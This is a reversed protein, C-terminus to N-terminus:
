EWPLVEYSDWVSGDKDLVFELKMREESAEVRLYGWQNTGVKSFPGFIPSDGCGELGAGASGITIHQTGGREVCDGSKILCTREYAHTHAVLALNVKYKEFLPDLAQRMFRSVVYDGLECMQTTYIPRHSTVVVWPTRSRNVNALDKDMWILQNSGSQWDHESDMMIVHVNGWDFSYWMKNGGGGHNDNPIASGWRVFTPVGCEGNSAHRGNNWWWPNFPVEGSPDNGEVHDLEHNGVTVMYPAIAAGPSVMSGWRDWVWGKGLAYGLDGFHLTFESGNEEIEKKVYYSTNQGARSFSQDGFGVFRVTRRTDPAAQFNIANSWGHEDNGVRYSYRMDPILEDMQITHTFGPDRFLNQAVQNASDECLDTHSYTASTGIAVVATDESENSKWYKVSPSPFDSSSVYMVRMKSPIGTYVLHPQKPTTPAQESPVVIEGLVFKTGKVNKGHLRRDDIIYSFKYDCRLFTLDHIEVEAYSSNRFSPVVADLIDDSNIAPGCQITFHDNETTEVGIIEATIKVDGGDKIFERDATLIAMANPNNNLKEIPPENKERMPFPTLLAEQSLLSREGQFGIQKHASSLSCLLLFSIIILLFFGFIQKM